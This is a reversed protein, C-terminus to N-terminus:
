PAIRRITVTGVAVLGTTTLFHPSAILRVSQRPQIDEDAAMYTLGGDTGSDWAWLPVTIEDIWNGDVALALDSVGTFWDPSPAIMTIFSLFSHRMTTEFTVRITGPARELGPGEIVTGIRNRREGEKFEALLTTKRGNEAVLELGSSATYGDRFLVYRSNHTIGILGSLHPDEPFELPATEASWTIDAVLNFSASDEQAHAIGATLQITIGMSVIAWASCLFRRRAGVM